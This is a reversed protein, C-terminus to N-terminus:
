IIGFNLKSPRSNDSLAQRAKAYELWFLAQAELEEERLKAARARESRWFDAENKRNQHEAVRLRESRIQDQEHWYDIAEKELALKERDREKLQDALSMGSEEAAQRDAMVKDMIAGAKRAADAYDNIGDAVNKYPFYDGFENVKAPDLIEDRLASAEAYAEYNDSSQAMWAAIGAAQSAEEKGMFDGFNKGGLAKEAVWALVAITAGAIMLPKTGGSSSIIRTSIKGTAPNTVVQTTTTTFIKSVMQGILGRTKTNTQVISIADDIGTTLKGVPTGIGSFAKSFGAGIAGGIIDAMGSMGIATMVGEVGVRESFEKKSSEIFGMPQIKGDLVAQRINESTKMEGTKIQEIQQASLQVSSFEDSGRFTNDVSFQADVVEPTKEASGGTNTYDVGSAQLDARLGSALSSSSKSSKSSSPTKTPTSEYDSKSYVNSQNGAQQRKKQEARIKDGRARTAASVM